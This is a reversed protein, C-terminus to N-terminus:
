VGSMAGPMGVRGAANLLVEEWTAGGFGEQGCSNHPDSSKVRLLRAGARPSPSFVLKMDTEWDM